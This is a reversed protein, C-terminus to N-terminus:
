RVEFPDGESHRYTIVLPVLAADFGGTPNLLEITEFETNVAKANWQYWNAPQCICQHVDALFQSVLESNNEGDVESQQVHLRLNVRMRFALAPPNGPYDLETAREPTRKVVCIQWHKPTWHGPERRYQVVEVGDINELRLAIEQLIEEDIPLTLPM